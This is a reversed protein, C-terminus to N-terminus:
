STFQNITHHAKTMLFKTYEISLIKWSKGDSPLAGLKIYPSPAVYPTITIHPQNTHQATVLPSNQARQLIDTLAKTEALARPMHFDSTVLIIQTIQRTAAWDILEQANGKTSLAKLGLDICCEFRQDAGDWLKKLHDHRTDPHVGSILLREGIGAEFLTMAKSIRTGGGGTYVVIGSNQRNNQEIFFPKSADIRAISQTETPIKAIFIVLGTFWLSFIGFSIKILLKL